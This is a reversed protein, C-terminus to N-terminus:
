NLVGRRLCVKILYVSLNLFMKSDNEELVVFNGKFNCKSFVIVKLLDYEWFLKM